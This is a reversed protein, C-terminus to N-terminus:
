LVRKGDVLTDRKSVANVNGVREGTFALDAPEKM